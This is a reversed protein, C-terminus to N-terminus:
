GSYTSFDLYTWHSTGINSWTKNLLLVTIYVVAYIATIIAMRYSNRKAFFVLMLAAVFLTIAIDVVVWAPHAM